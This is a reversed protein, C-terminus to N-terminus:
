AAAELEPEPEEPEGPEDARPEELHKQARAQVIVVIVAFAIWAAAIAIYVLAHSPM